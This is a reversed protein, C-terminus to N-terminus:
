CAVLFPWPRTEGLHRAEAAAISAGTRFSRRDRCCRRKNEVTPLRSLNTEIRSLVQRPVRIPIKAILLEPSNSTNPVRSRVPVAWACHVIALLTHATALLKLGTGFGGFLGSLLDGVQPPDTATVGNMSANLAADGLM